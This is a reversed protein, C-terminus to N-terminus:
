SSGSTVHKLESCAPRTLVSPFIHKFTVQHMQDVVVKDGQCKEWTACLRDGEVFALSIWSFCLKDSCNYFHVKFWIMLCLSWDQLRSSQAM